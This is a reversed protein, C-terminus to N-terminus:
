GVPPSAPCRLPKGHIGLLLNDTAIESMAFRTRPTASASHPTIVCNSLAVLPHTSPLPEPESVDLGAGRIQNSTLADLLAEQDVVAGRSTNVFVADSQMAAFERKGILKSTTPNLDVHISVFDSQVCLDELREVRTANLEEEAKPKRDKDFYLVRMRYAASCLRAMETGIRGLGVIGLTTDHIDKGLDDLLSWSKWEGGSVVGMGATVKRAVDQMLVFAMSATAETLVEPTHGLQVGRKAAEAFDFNDTGVATNAVVKLSPGAADFFEANVSSLPSAIIGECGAIKELLIPKPPSGQADWEEFECVEGIRVLDAPAIKLGVYVRPKKVM